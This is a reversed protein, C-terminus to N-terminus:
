CGFLEGSSAVCMNHVSTLGTRYTLLIPESFTVHTANIDVLPTTSSQIVFDTGNSGNFNIGGGGGTSLNIQGDLETTNQVWLGRGTGSFEVDGAFTAGSGFNAVGTISAANSVTLGTGGAGMSIGLAGTLTGGTLPLDSGGGGSGNSAATIQGEANFSLNCSTCSGSSGLINALGITISPTAGGVDVISIGAGQTLTSAICGIGNGICLAGAAMTTVDYGFGGNSQAVVHAGGVVPLVNQIRAYTLNDSIVGGSITITSGDVMVGGLQTTSATLLSITGSGTIAAVGTTLGTGAAISTVSGGGGGGFCNGSLNIYIAGATSGCMAGALTGTVSALQPIPGGSALHFYLPFDLTAYSNSLNLIQNNGVIFQLDPGADISISIQYPLAMPVFATTVSPQGGVDCLLGAAINCVGSFDIGVLWSGNGRLISSPPSAFGSVGTQTGLSSAFFGSTGYDTGAYNKYVLAAVGTLRSENGSCSGCALQDFVYTEIASGYDGASGNEVVFTGANAELYSTNSPPTTGGGNAGNTLGSPIIAYSGIGAFHSNYLAASATGQIYLGFLSANWQDLVSGTRNTLGVEDLVLSAYSSWRGSTATPPLWSPDHWELAGQGLQSTVGNIFPSGTNSAYLGGNGGDTLLNGTMTGGSTPLGGTGAPVTFAGTENLYKTADTGGAAPVLGPLSASFPQILATLEPNTLGGASGGNNFLVQGPLSTGTGGGGAQVWAGGTWTEWEGLQSNFGSAGPLPASPRTTSTWPTAIIGGFIIPANFGAGAPCDAPTNPCDPGTQAIAPSVLACLVAFWLARLGRM